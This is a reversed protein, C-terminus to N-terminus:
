RRRSERRADLQERARFADERLRGAARRQRGRARENLAAHDLRVLRHDDADGAVAVLRGLDHAVADAFGVCIPAIAPPSRARRPIAAQLHRRRRSRSINGAKRSARIAPADHDHTASGHGRALEVRQERRPARTVTTAGSIRGAISRASTSITRRANSRASRSPAHHTTAAAGGSTLRCTCHRPRPVAYTRSRRPRDRARWRTDRRRRAGPRRSSRSKSRRGRAPAPPGAARPARRTAAPRGRRQIAADSAARRSHFRAAAHRHLLPPRLQELRQVREIRAFGLDTPLLRLCCATISAADNSGAIAAPRTDSTPAPGPSGSSHVTRATRRTSRPPDRARRRAPRHARVARPERLRLAEADALAGTARAHPLLRNMASIIRPAAGPLRTTRSLPPSGNTNPRPASSASASALGANRELDHRAHAGRDRRRLQGANRDRMSSAGGAKQHQGTVRRSRKFVAQRGNLRVGRLAPRSSPVPPRPSCRALARNRMAPSGVVGAAITQPADVRRRISRSRCREGPQLSRVARQRRPRRTM